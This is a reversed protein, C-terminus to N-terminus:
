GEEALFERAEPVIKSLARIQKQFRPMRGGEWKILTFKHIGLEEALERILLGKEKRPLVTPDPKCHQL